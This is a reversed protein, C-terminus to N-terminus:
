DPKPEFIATNSIKGLNLDRIEITTRTKKKLDLTEIAKALQYNGLTVTETVKISRTLKDKSNYFEAKVVVLHESDIWLLKYGPRRRTRKKTRKLLRPTSREISKILVVERGDLTQSEVVTNTHAAISEHTLELESFDFLERRRRQRDSIQQLKGSGPLYIWKEESGDTSQLSWYKQGAAKDPEIIEVRTQKIVSHSSRPYHVWYKFYRTRISDRRNIQSIIVTAAQDVGHLREAVAMLLEEAAVESLSISTDATTAATASLLPILLSLVTIQM